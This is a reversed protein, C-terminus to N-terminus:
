MIRGMGDLYCHLNDEPNITVREVSLCHSTLCMTL